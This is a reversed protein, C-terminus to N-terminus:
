FPRQKKCTHINLLIHISDIMLSLFGCMPASKRKLLVFAIENFYKKYSFLLQIELHAHVYVQM